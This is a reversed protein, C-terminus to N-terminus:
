KVTQQKRGDIAEVAKELPWGLQYRRNQVTNYNLGALACYDKLCVQKGNFNLMVNNRKNRAQEDLTAWRVNGPEYDRLNDIRDISHKPSPKPGIHNLFSEFSELWEQCVNIGRGGYRAFSKDNPDTCRRIMNNWTIYESSQKGSTHGHTTLRQRLMDKHYCKCSTIKGRKVATMDAEVISGCDCRLRWTTRTGSPYKRPTGKELFTLRGYKESM